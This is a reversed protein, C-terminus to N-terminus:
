KLKPFELTPLGSDAGLDKLKPMELKPLQSDSLEKLKPL